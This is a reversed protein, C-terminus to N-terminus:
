AARRRRWDELVREYVRRTGDVCRDWRFLREVRERAARGLKDRLGPDALLRLLPEVFGEPRGPDAVFGAEGDAVLEPISGRDSAVVPVGSSMAEAVTLGFGEMASPFFFVDALNFHDAKDAEPVYGTFVVREAVGARAAHRRLDDLLPGGGAVVLRATPQRAAVARWVDILLFLNKRPKLGGFFLVVPKDRLGHREVLDPRRPRPAFASDVGYPVVSVHDIRAGLEAALQRRAFESGVVVHESAEIVRKEIVRNLPSPDLHHHHSVVPVDLRWRRRAWLAAPGMYRLAHVRLLDFGAGAHV